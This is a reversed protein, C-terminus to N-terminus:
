YKDAAPNAKRHYQYLHYLARAARGASPYAPIGAKCFQARLRTGTEALHPDGGESDITFLTPKADQRHRLFDIIEGTPDALDPFHYAMRPILHDVVIMAVAPDQYGKELVESLYTADIFTRWMDLPNGAISGAVPVSARLFAMSSESLPPVALGARTFIDSCAVSNGGGGGILFVGKGSPAPLLSLAMIADVCENMSRVQLVGTQRCFAEWLKLEGTMAGTHSAATAAGAKSEGGKWLIIPKKRGAQKAVQLLRRANKVSELYLAIIQIKEDDIMAELFDTSDLVAANGFSVAKEVGIGLSCTYETLRQTLGGSQSIIGLFGSLGPIAGWATLGAAPCYPGMCNPGIIKLEREKSIAAIQDELKAGEPLGTERFGSTLIHIHKLGTRACEELIAPVLRAAVCVIALDPVEPLSPLDPYARLGKIEAAKPNIPYLKGAYGSELLKILFSMGGFKYDGTSVGIIAIHKPYFFKILDNSQLNMSILRGQFVPCEPKYIPKQFRFGSAIL